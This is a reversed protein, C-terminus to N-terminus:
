LSDDSDSLALWDRRIGSILTTSLVSRERLRSRVLTVLTDALPAVRCDSGSAFSITKAPATLRNAARNRAAVGSKWGSM